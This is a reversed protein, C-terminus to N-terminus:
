MLDKIFTKLYFVIKKFQYQHFLHGFTDSNFERMKKVYSKPYQYRVKEILKFRGKADPRLEFSMSRFHIIEGELYYDPFGTKIFRKPVFRSKPDLRIIAVKAGKEAIKAALIRGTDILRVKSISKNLLDLETPFFSLEGLISRKIISLAPHSFLTHVPDQLFIADYSESKDMLWDAAYRSMFLDTDVIWVTECECKLAKIVKSLSEAHEYSAHSFSSHQNKLITLPILPNGQLPELNIKQSKPLTNQDIVTFHVFSEFSNLRKINEKIWFNDGFNCLVVCRTSTSNKLM